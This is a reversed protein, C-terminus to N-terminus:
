APVRKALSQAEEAAAEILRLLQAENHLAALKRLSILMDYTYLVSEGRSPARPGTEFKSTKKEIHRLRPM